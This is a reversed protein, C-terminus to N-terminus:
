MVPHLQQFIVSRQVLPQINAPISSVRNYPPPPAALADGIRIYLLHLLHHLQHCDIFHSPHLQQLIISGQEFSTSYTSLNFVIPRMVPTSSSSCRRDKHSSLPTLAPISSLRDFLLPPAAPTDGFKTRLLHFLRQSQPCDTSHCPHLQQLM